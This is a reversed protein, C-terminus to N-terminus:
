NPRSHRTAIYSRRGDVVPLRCGHKSACFEGDDLIHVQRQILSCKSYNVHISDRRVDRDNQQAHHCTAYMFLANNHYLRCYILLGRTSRVLPATFLSRGFLCRLGCSVPSVLMLYIGNHRIDRSYLGKAMTSTALNSDATTLIWM